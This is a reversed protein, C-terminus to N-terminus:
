RPHREDRSRGAQIMDISSGNGYEFIDPGGDTLLADAVKQDYEAPNWQVRGHRGPVGQM